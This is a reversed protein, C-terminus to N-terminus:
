SKVRIKITVLKSKSKYQSNGAATIRVKIKYSGKKTGRKIKIKGTKSYVKFRKKNGKVLKYTVDGKAGSVRMAKRRKIVLAKKKLKSAKVKVTKGKAKMTNAAKKQTEAPVISSDDNVTVKCSGSCCEKDDSNFAKYRITVTGAKKATIVGYYDIDAISTNSSDYDIHQCNLPVDSPLMSCIIQLEQGKKMTYSSAKSQISSPSAKQVKDADYVHLTMSASVGNYMTGTIIVDGTSHLNIVDSTVSAISEDSSTFKVISNTVNEPSTRFNPLGTLEDQLAVWDESRQFFLASPVVGESEPIYKAIFTLDEDFSLDDYLAGSNKEYWGTFLYGKKEPADPVEDPRDHMRIEDLVAVDKGDATFRLTIYVHGLEADMSDDFANVRCRISKKFGDIIEAYTREDGYTNEPWLKQDDEWASNIEKQYQDLLGEDETMNLLSQKLILWREKILERFAPDYARLRDLWLMKTYNFDTNTDETDSLDWGSDYDWLPGWYLKGGRPKYVYTSHTLFADGDKCFEEILWYDAASQLDMMEAVADHNIQDAMILDEIKQMYGHIYERQKIQGETHTSHEYVPDQHLWTIGQDTTFRNGAPEDADQDRDFISLLYGGSINAEGAAAEEESASVNKKLTDINVRNEGVNVLESLVYCGLYKSGYKEGTMVLDVPVGKPSYSFNMQDGLWSTMLNKVMTRDFSNAMLAWEKDSGMGLLSQSEKFKLKYPKKESEWTTNGRGRIYKLTLNEQDTFPGDGIGGAYGEPVRIDVTGTCKVSHDPSSNMDDITEESEDINIYVVPIGHDEVQATDAFAVCSFTVFLVATFALINTISRFRIM